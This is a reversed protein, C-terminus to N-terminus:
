NAAAWFERFEIRVTVARAGLFPGFLLRKCGPVVGQKTDPASSRKPTEGLKSVVVGFWLDPGFSALSQDDKTSARRGMRLM